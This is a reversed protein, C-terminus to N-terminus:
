DHAAISRNASPLASWSTGTDNAGNALGLVKTATIIQALLLAKAAERIDDAMWCESVTTRQKAGVEIAVDGALTLERSMRNEGGALIEWNPLRRDSWYLLLRFRTLKRPRTPLEIATTSAHCIKGKSAKEKIAKKQEADCYSVNTACKSVWCDSDCIIEFVTEPKSM